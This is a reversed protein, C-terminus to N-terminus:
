APDDPATLFAAVDALVRDREADLTLLHDSDDVETLRARAGLRARLEAAGSPDVVTDRRGQVILVRNGVRDLEGDVAAILELASRTAEVSFTRFAVCREVERRAARDRLPPARRPV